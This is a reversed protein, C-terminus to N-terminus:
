PPPRGRAIRPRRHSQPPFDEYATPLAVPDSPQYDPEQPIPDPESAPIVSPSPLTPTRNPHSPNSPHSLTSTGAEAPVVSYPPIPDPESAPVVTLDPPIPERWPADEVPEPAPGTTDIPSFHGMGPNDSTLPEEEPQYLHAPLPRMGPPPGLEGDDSQNDVFPSGQEREWAEKVELLSALLDPHIPLLDNYRTWDEGPKAMLIPLLDRYGITRDAMTSELVRRMGAAAQDIEDQSEGKLYRAKVSTTRIILNMCRFLYPYNLPRRSLLRNALSRLLDIEQELGQGKSALRPLSGEAIGAKGSGDRNQPYPRGRRSRGKKAPVPNRTKKQSLNDCADVATLIAESSASGCPNMRPVLGRADPPLYSGPSPGVAEQATGTPQRSTAGPSDAPASKLLSLLKNHFNPTPIRM